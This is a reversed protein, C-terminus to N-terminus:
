EDDDGTTPRAKRGRGQRQGGDGSLRADGLRSRLSVIARHLLAKVAGESRNMISAVQKSRLGQCFRLVIVQQQDQPLARVLDALNKAMEQKELLEAASEGDDSLEYLDELPVCPRSRRYEGAIANSAIRYLWASFPLGRWEYRDISELAARFTEATIDEASTADGTRYYAYSYIRDVYRDYLVGFAVPSQKAAEILRRDIELEATPKAM